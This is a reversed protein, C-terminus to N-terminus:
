ENLRAILESKKGSVPKGAAKLLEKLQVVTMSAYDVDVASFEDPETGVDVEGDSAELPTSDGSEDAQDVNDDTETMGQLAEAAAFSTSVDDEKQGADDEMAAELVAKKRADIEAQRRREEEVIEDLTPGDDQEVGTQLLQSRRIMVTRCRYLDKISDRIRNELSGDLLSKQLDSFDMGAAATSLMTAMNHRIAQQLSAQIRRDTILLPKLRVLFGDNTIVDIVNDIKTRHRRIQRRVHDKLIEHGMFLTIADSGITESIRFRLKVHLKSFDGDFEQQTIEYVRGILQEESEALTEGISQYNWPNRPARITFWRKAKWKDKQRRAVARQNQSRTAM